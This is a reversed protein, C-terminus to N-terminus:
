QCTLRWRGDKSHEFIKKKKELLIRARKVNSDLFDLNRGSDLEQAPSGSPSKKPSSPSQIIVSGISLAKKSRM